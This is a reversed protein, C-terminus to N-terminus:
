LEIINVSFNSSLFVQLESFNEFFLIENKKTRLESGLIKTFHPNQDNLDDYGCFYKGKHQSVVM